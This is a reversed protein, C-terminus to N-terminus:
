RFFIVYGLYNSKEYGAKDLIKTLIAIRKFHEPVAIASIKNARLWDRLLDESQYNNLSEGDTYKALALREEVNKLDIKSAFVTLLGETYGARAVLPYAHQRFTPIWTSINEPALVFSESGAIQNLRSAVEYDPHPVKLGIQLEHSVLPDRSGRDFTMTVLLALAVFIFVPNRGFPHEFAKAVGQTVFVSLFISLPIAWFLRYTLFKSTVYEGLFEDFYPNMITLLFILCFSLVWHRSAQDNVLCWASILGLLWFWLAVNKGFVVTAAVDIPIFIQFNEFSLGDRIIYSRVLLGIVLPYISALLGLGMKRTSLFNPRWCAALSLGATIPAVYLANATFGVACVQILMLLLWNGFRPRVYFDISYVVILPIIATIFVSKGQFMSEYSFYGYMRASRLVLFELALALSAWGWLRPILRQMCLAAAFVSFLSFLPGFILHFVKIPEGVNFIQTIFAGFLEFTHVWYTPLLYAGPIGHLFDSAYIASDPNDLVSVAMSIYLSDDTNPLQTLLAVSIAIVSALSFAFYNLIDKSADKFQMMPAHRERWYLIALYTITIGWFILYQGMFAFIAALATGVLLHTWVNEIEHEKDSNSDDIFPMTPMFIQDCILFVLIGISAILAVFVYRRIDMFSGRDLVIVNVLITWCGYFVIIVACIVRLLINFDMKRFNKM